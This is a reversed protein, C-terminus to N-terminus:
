VLCPHQYEVIDMNYLLYELGDKQLATLETFEVGIVLEFKTSFEPHYKSMEWIKRVKLKKIHSGQADLIDLTWESPFNHPYLCGFSFGDRSIDLIQGTGRETVALLHIAQQHENIRQEQLYLAGTVEQVSIQDM